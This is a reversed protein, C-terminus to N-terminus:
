LMGSVNEKKKELAKGSEQRGEFRQCIGTITAAERAVVLESYYVRNDNSQDKNIKVGYM